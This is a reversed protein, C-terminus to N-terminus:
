NDPLERVVIRDGDHLEGAARIMRIAAEAAEEPAVVTVGDLEGGQNSLSVHIKMAM